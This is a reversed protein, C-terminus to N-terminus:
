KEPKVKFISVLFLIAVIFDIIVWTGKNLHFPAIPNFLITTIAMVFLWFTKKLKYSIWVLFISSAIVVWRLLVYYGYPWIPLIALLLIIVSIISAIKKYKIIEKDM